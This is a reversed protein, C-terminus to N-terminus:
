SMQHCRPSEIGMPTYPNYGVSQIIIASRKQLLRITYTTMSALSSPLSVLKNSSVLLEELNAMDSISSPLAELKNQRQVVHAM